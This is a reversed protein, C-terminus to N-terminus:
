VLEQSITMMVTNYYLQMSIAGTQVPRASYLGVNLIVRLIMIIIMTANGKQHIYQLFYPISSKTCRCLAHPGSIHLVVYYLYLYIYNIRTPTSQLKTLSNRYPEYLQVLEWGSRESLAFVNDESDDDDAIGVTYLWISLMLRSVGICIYAICWPNNQFYMSM